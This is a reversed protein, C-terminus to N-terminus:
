VISAWYTSSIRCFAEVVSPDFQTGSCRVIEDRALMVTSAQRYPRDTVVAEFADAVAFIRAGLNIGEGELGMPYGSGDWREHHQRVIERAGALEEFGELLRGGLETHTRMLAFEDHTLPGPKSLISDPIGIIGVDHLLAGHEISVLAHGQLGMEQAIALAYRALRKCHEKTEHGRLELAGLLMKAINMETKAIATALRKKQAALRDSKMAANLQLERSGAREWYAEISRRLLSGLEQTDWPKCVVHSVATIESTKCPAWIHSATILPVYFRMISVKQELELSPEMLLAFGSDYISHGGHWVPYMIDLSGFSFDICRIRTKTSFYQSFDPVM